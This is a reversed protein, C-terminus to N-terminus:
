TGAGETGAVPTTAAPPSALLPPASGPNPSPSVVGRSFLRVIGRVYAEAKEWSSRLDIGADRLVIRARRARIWHIVGLVALGLCLGIGVVAAIGNALRQEENAPDTGLIGFGFIGTLLAYAFILTVVFYSPLSKHVLGVYTASVRRLAVSVNALQARHHAERRAQDVTTDLGDTGISELTAQVRLLGELRDLYKKERVSRAATWITWVLTLAGLIVTAIDTFKM